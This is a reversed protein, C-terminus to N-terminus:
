GEKKKAELLAKLHLLHLRDKPETLQEKERMLAPVSLVRVTLGDGLPVQVTDQVLDEYAGTKIEGLVDLRGFKTELLQHGKTSLHSDGPMLGPRNRYHAGIEKLAEILKELNAPTRSHVIDLDWTNFPAGQLVASLAGAIFFDVEHKALVRLIESFKPSEKV